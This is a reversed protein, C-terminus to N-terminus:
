SVLRSTILACPSSALRESLEARLIHEKLAEEGLWKLLPEFRETQEKKAAKATESDDLSLGEKAVNQFKKGAAFSFANNENGPILFFVIHNSQHLFDEYWLIDFQIKPDITFEL